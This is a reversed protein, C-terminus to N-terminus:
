TREGQAKAIAARIEKLVRHVCHSKYVEDDAADEVFPMATILAELLEENISHLRRLLAAAEHRTSEFPTNVLEDALRQAETTM